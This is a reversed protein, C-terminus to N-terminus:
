TKVIRLTELDIVGYGWEGPRVPYSRAICYLLGRAPAVIRELVEFSATSVVRGLEEGAQVEGLLRDPTINSHLYGGFAPNLRWRQGFYFFREPLLPEGDLLGYRYLVSFTGAVNQELWREEAETGWGAGGIEVALAPIGMRGAVAMATGPITPLANLSPYGFARALDDTRQTTQADPFDNHFIVVGFASGWPLTHFDLLYDTRPFIEAVLKKALLESTWTSRGPFSRNMDPADSNDPTNRRLQTLAVPNAVPVALLSGRLRAPDVRELVRRIIEISIWEDGHLTSLLTVTPGPKAGRIVHVPMTIDYGGLEVTVPLRFFGREGPKVGFLDEIQAM